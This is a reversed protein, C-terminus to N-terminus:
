DISLGIQGIFTEWKAIESNILAGLEAPGAFDPEIGLMSVSTKYEDSEVAQRLAAELRDAVEPPLGAPALIGMWDLVTFDKFGAEMMTPVQPIRPATRNSTVALPVVKHSEIMPLAVPLSLFMFDVRGGVLNTMADFPGKFPVHEVEVGAQRKFLEGALHAPSGTSGSGFNMAGPQARALGALEDPTRATLNNNVILVNFLDAVKALPTFDKRLDYPTGKYLTQSVTHPMFIVGLTYGDPKAKAVASLGLSGYVGPKNEVLVPQKLSAGMIKGIARAIIDGPGGAQDSVVITIPREPYAAHVAPIGSGLVAGFAVAALSQLYQKTM